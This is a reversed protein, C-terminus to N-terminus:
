QLLWEVARRLDPVVTDPKFPQNWSKWEKEGYGTAVLVTRCGAAVGAGIDSAKDGILVCKALDLKLDSAASHLMGPMPKRCDCVKRYEGKGDPHHPCYYFRDIHAGKKKLEASIAKNVVEVQKETRAGKAVGAQNSAVSVPISRENLSRIAEPVGSILRLHKPHDLNEVEENIVGDRDLFVAEIATM